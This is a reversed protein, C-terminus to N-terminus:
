HAARLQSYMAGLASMSSTYFTLGAVPAWLWLANLDTLLTLVTAATATTLLVISGLLGGFVLARKAPTPSYGGAATIGFYGGIFPGFPIGVFHVVPILALIVMIGFGVLVGKVVSGGTRISVAKLIISATNLALGHESSKIPTVLSPKPMQFASIGRWRRSTGSHRLTRVLTPLEIKPAIVISWFSLKAVLDNVGRNRLLAWDSIEPAGLVPDLKEM